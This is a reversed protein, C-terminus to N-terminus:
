RGVLAPNMRQAIANATISRKEISMDVANIRSMLAQIKPMVSEDAGRMDYYHHHVDGGSLGAVNVGYKGGALPEAPALVEAGAEGGLGIGTAMQFYTPSTLVGGNAYRTIRDGGAIRRGRDLIGGSAFGLSDFMGMDGWGSSFGVGSIADGGILNSAAGGLSEGGNSSFGFLSSFLSSAGGGGSFLSSFLSGGGSDGNSNGKILDSLWNELPKTVTLRTILQLIDQELGQFVQRLSKGKALASEFNNSVIRTFDAAVQQEDREANNIRQIAVDTQAIEANIAQRKALEDDYAQTGIEYGDKLLENRTKLDAIETARQEANQGMLQLELRKEALQGALNQDTEAAKADRQAATRGMLADAYAKENTIAGSLFQAHAEELVKQQDGAATSDRYAAAIREEAAAQDKIKQISDASKDAKDRNNNEGELWLNGYALQRDRDATAATQPNALNQRYQTDIQQRRRIQERDGPAARLVEAQDTLARLREQAPDLQHAAAIAAGESARTLEDLILKLRLLNNVAEPDDTNGTMVAENLASYQTQATALARALLQATDAMKATKADITDYSGALASAQEILTKEDSKQNALAAAARDREQQRELNSILASDPSVSIGAEGAATGLGQGEKAAIIQEEPTRPGRAQDGMRTWANSFSSSLSSWFTQEAPGLAALRATLAAVVLRQAEQAQGSAVLHEIQSLQAADLANFRQAAEQAGKAPDELIQALLKTAEQADSGTARALGPVLEAAPTLLEPAIRGSAALTTYSQRAASVTLGGGAAIQDAGALVQGATVGGANGTAALADRIRQLERESQSAAVAMAIPIAAVAAAFAVTGLTLGGIQIGMLGLTSLGRGVNGSSFETFAARTERGLRGMGMSAIGTAANVDGYKQTLLGLLQSHRDTTLMGAALADNLVGQGKSLSAQARAAPDLSYTWRTLSAALKASAQDASDGIKQMSADGDAGLQQLKARVEDDGILEVRASITKDDGAAM